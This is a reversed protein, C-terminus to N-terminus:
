ARSPASAAAEETDQGDHAGAERNQKELLALLGDIIVQDAFRQSEPQHLEGWQGAVARLAPRRRRGAARAVGDHGPLRRENTARGVGHAHIIAFALVANRPSFGADLLIQLYGDMLRWGHETPPRDLTLAHMGPWPQLAAISRRDLELLREQWTGFDAPPVEVPALVYDIVLDVLAEKNPVHHYPAM